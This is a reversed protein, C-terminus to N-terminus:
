PLFSEAAAVSQWRGFGDLNVTAPASSPGRYAGTVDLTGTSYSGDPNVELTPYGSLSVTKTWTTQGKVRHWVEVLGSSNTAWHCHVVLEHWVGTQMPAPIAYLPPLNTGSGGADANSRYQHYPWTNTAVGTNMVLTVHDSQAHLAITPGGHGLNQFNLEAISVGWQSASSSTTGPQFGGAPVYFMLSYYDDGGVNIGRHTIVQCRTKGGSWAPLTFLGSSTGEGVNQTDVSFDGFHVQSNDVPNGYNHCQPTGWPQYGGNFAGNFLLQGGIVQKEGSVKAAISAGKVHGPGSKTPKPGGDATTTTPNTAGDDTTTTPPPPPKEDTTTTPGGDTTTTPPPTTTTGEDTTTTSPTTDTTTTTETTTTSCHETNPKCQREAARTGTAMYAGVFGAAACICALSYTAIKRSIIPM